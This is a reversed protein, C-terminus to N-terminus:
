WRSKSRSRAAPGGGHMYAARLDTMACCQTARFKLLKPRLVGQRVGRRPRRAGGGGAGRRCLRGARLRDARRPRRDARRDGRRRRGRGRPVAPRRGRRDGEDRAIALLAAQVPAEPEASDDVTHRMRKGDAGRASLTASGSGTRIFRPDLGLPRKRDPPLPSVFPADGVRARFDARAAARLDPDTMLDHGCAALIQATKLSAKDGISMGGCATVPWTHLGIHLPFTPWGFVGTPM